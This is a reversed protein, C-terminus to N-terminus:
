VEKREKTRIHLTNDDGIELSLGESLTIILYNSPLDKLTIYSINQMESNSSKTIKM